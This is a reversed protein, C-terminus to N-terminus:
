NTCGYFTGQFMSTDGVDIGSFLGAPINGGIGSNKFTNYFMNIAHGSVNTFLDGGIGTLRTCNEFTNAFLDDAATDIGYFLNGPIQGQLNSCGKFTGLFMEADGGSAGAFLEGPIQGSLGSCGNFTAEFMGEASGTVGAFLTGPISGSLGSCNSFTSQFMYDGSGSVGSFLNAPISGGLSSCGYFTDSFMNDAAGSIGDFLDTPIVGGLSSCGRFTGNFMNSAAGTVGAFLTSDAIATLNSCGKFTDIFRPLQGNASGLTPFVTGLSGGIEEILTPTRNSGTGFSIAATTASTSYGTARGIIGIKYAGANTYTHQYVTQTTNNRTIEDVTGDGWNVIFSGTASLSFKFTTNAALRTTSVYFDPEKEVWFAYASGNASYASLAAPDTRFYGNEDIIQTGQGNQGTYYGYFDYGTREPVSRMETLVTSATSEKYWNVGPRLYAVSPNPSNTVNGHVLTVTYVPEYQAVFTLSQEYEWIFTDGSDFMADNLEHVSWGIFLPSNLTACSSEQVSNAVIYESGYSVNETIFPLVTSGNCYYSATYQNVEWHAYITATSSTRDWTTASSLDANYYQKPRVMTGGVATDFYGLFKHGAWTPACNLTPMNQGFTASVTTTACATGGGPDLTVTTPTINKYQAYITTNATFYTNAVKIIGDEDIIQSGGSSSSWYGNFMKGSPATPMTLGAGGASVAAFISVNPDIINTATSNSFFGVGKKEYIYQTNGTGSGKNLSITYIQANQVWRAYATGNATYATLAADVNRFHGTADVIMTGGTSASTTWYGAFTYNSRVPLQEMVLGNSSTGMDTGTGEGIEDGSGNDAGKTQEEGKTLELEDGKKIEELEKLLEKTQGGDDGSSAGRDIVGGGGTACVNYWDTGYVLGADRCQTSVVVYGPTSVTANDNLTITMSKPTWHAYMTGASNFKRPSAGLLGTSTTLRTGGEPQTWYGNFTYGSKTPIRALQHLTEFDLITGSSSDGWGVGYAEYVTGVGGSGGNDNVTITYIPAWDAYLTGSTQFLTLAADTEQFEWKGTSTNYDVAKVSAGQNNEASYGNFVYNSRTPESYLSLTGRPTSGCINYWNTGYVLGARNCNYTSDGATGGTGGNANLYVEADAVDWHAYLTINSTPTYSAGGLGVFQGGSAATYWGMFTHGNYTASPLNISDNTWKAYWVTDDTLASGATVGSSTIKGTSAIYATTSSPTEYYGSFTSTVWVPEFNTPSGNPNYTIKYKKQPKTIANSNSPTMQNSLAANLFVGVGPQAYVATTGASTAGNGDLSITYVYPECNPHSTGADSELYYGSDCSTQYEPILNEDFVIQCSGHPVSQCNELWVAYLTSNGTVTNSAPLVGDNKITYAFDDLQENSSVFNGMYTPSYAAFTYGSRSPITIYPTTWPGIPSDSWGVGQNAYLPGNDGGTGGNKNLTVTYMTNPVCQYGSLTYGSNCTIAYNVMGTNSVSTVCTGNQVTGECKKAWAAYWIQNSNISPDINLVGNPKIRLLEDTGGGTQGSSTLEIDPVASGDNYFYGRFLYNTRGPYVITVSNQWNTAASNVSWGTQYKEYLPGEGGGTGNNKNLTMTYVPQNDICSIVNAGNNNSWYTERFGTVFETTGSPCTTAMQNAEKFINTMFNTANKGNWRTAKTGFLEPPVYSKTSGVRGLNYCGEFTGAFMNKAGSTFSSDAEPAGVNKFLNAPIAGTLGECYKFTGHFMGEAYGTVARFLGDPISPLRKCTHFTEHFTNKRAMYTIDVGDNGFLTGPLGTLNECGRFTGSFAEGASNLKVDEAIDMKNGFLYAPISGTLGSCGSFTDKYKPIIDHSVDAALLDENSINGPAPGAILSAVWSSAGLVLSSYMVWQAAVSAAHEAIMYWAVPAAAGSSLIILGIAVLGTGITMLLQRVSSHLMKHGPSGVFLNDPIPGTLNTAGSFLGRYSPTNYLKDSTSSTQTYMREWSSNFIAGLSGDISAIKTKDGSGFEIVPVTLHFVRKGKRKASGTLWITKVGGTSYTHQHSHQDHDSYNHVTTSGDGWHITIPNDPDSKAAIKITFTKNSSTLSTTTIKFPKGTEAWVAKFTIDDGFNRFAEGSVAFPDGPKFMWLSNGVRWGVLEKGSQTCSSSVATNTPLNYCQCHTASWMDGDTMGNMADDGCNCQYTSPTVPNTIWSGCNYRVRVAHASSHVCFM